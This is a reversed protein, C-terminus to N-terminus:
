RGPWSLSGRVSDKATGYRFSQTTRSANFWMLSWISPVTVYRQDQRMPTHPLQPIITFPTGLSM